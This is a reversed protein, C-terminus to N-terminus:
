DLSPMKAAVLKHNAVVRDIILRLFHTAFEPDLGSQQALIAIKQFQRAEREPDVAPLGHTAKYDGVRRTLEFRDALLECLKSDVEDIANRLLELEDLPNEKDPTYSETM